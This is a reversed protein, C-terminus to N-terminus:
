LSCGKLNIYILINDIKLMDKLERSNNVNSSDCESLLMDTSVM